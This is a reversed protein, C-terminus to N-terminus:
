LREAFVTAARRASSTSPTMADPASASPSGSDARVAIVPVEGEESVLLAGEVLESVVPVDVSAVVEVSAVIASEVVSAEVVVVSEVVDVFEAVVVVDEVVVVSDVGNADVGVITLSL